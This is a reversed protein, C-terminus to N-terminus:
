SKIGLLDNTRGEKRAAEIEEYKGQKYLREVDAKTVPRRYAQQVLNTLIKKLCGSDRDRCVFIKRASEPSPRSIRSPLPGRLNQVRILPIVHLNLVDKFRARNHEGGACDLASFLASAM